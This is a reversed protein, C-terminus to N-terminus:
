TMSLFSSPTTSIIDSWFSDLTFESDNLGLNGDTGVKDMKYELLSRLKGKISSGPNYPLKTIPNRIIPNDNGGIEMEDKSGGIRLGELTTFTGTVEMYHKLKLSM